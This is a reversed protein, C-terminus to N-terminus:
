ASNIKYRGLLPRIHKRINGEYGQRTKRGVTAEATHLDILEAVTADSRPNEGAAVQAVLRERVEEARREADPGTERLYQPKGLLADTGAYVRVRLAGSKLTEINGQSRSTPRARRSGRSAGGLVEMGGSYPNSPVEDTRRNENMGRGM